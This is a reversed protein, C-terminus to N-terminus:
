VREQSLKLFLLPYFSAYMENLRRLVLDPTSFEFNVIKARCLLYLHEVWDPDSGSVDRQHRIRGDKALPTRHCHLFHLCLFVCATTPSSYEM